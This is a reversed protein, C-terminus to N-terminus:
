AKARQRRRAVFGGIGAGIVGLVITGPEPTQKVPPPDVVPPPIVIPPEPDIGRPPPVFPPLDPLGASATMLGWSLVVIGAAIFFKQPRTFMRRLM